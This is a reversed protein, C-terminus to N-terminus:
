TTGDSTIKRKIMRSLYYSDSDKEMSNVCLRFCIEKLIHSYGMERYNNTTLRWYLSERGGGWVRKFIHIVLSARIKELLTNGESLATRLELAGEETPMTFQTNQLSSSPTNGIKHGEKGSGTVVLGGSLM